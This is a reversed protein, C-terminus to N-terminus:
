PTANAAHNALTSNYLDATIIRTQESAYANRM